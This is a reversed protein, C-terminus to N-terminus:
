RFVQLKVCYREAGSMHLLAGFDSVDSFYKDIIAFALKYVEANEHQQLLEVKDLGECEELM